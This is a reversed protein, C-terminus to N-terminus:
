IVIDIDSSYYLYLYGNPKIIRYNVLARFLEKRMQLVRARTYQPIHEM